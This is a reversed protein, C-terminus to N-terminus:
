PSIDKYRDVFTSYMGRHLGSEVRQGPTRISTYLCYVARYRFRTCIVAGIIIMSSVGRKKGAGEKQRYIEESKKVSAAATFCIIYM